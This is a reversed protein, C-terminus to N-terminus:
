NFFLLSSFLFWFSLLYLHFYVVLKTFEKSLFVHYTSFCTTKNKDGLDVVNTGEINELEKIIITIIIHMNCM